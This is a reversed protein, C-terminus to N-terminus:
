EQLVLGVVRLATQMRKIAELLTNIAARHDGQAAQQKATDRMTRSEQVYRESLKITGQDPKLEVYAIPALEEYSHYRALEYEYEEADSKFKLDYTLTASGLLKNLASIIEAHADKLLEAAERYRGDKALAQAQDGQKRAREIGPGSAKGGPATRQRLDQYTAEANRLEKLLEEYRARQGAEAQQQDPAKRSLEEIMRLAEDALEEARALNDANLADNASAYVALAAAVQQKVAADDKRSAREMATSTALMMKVLQLKQQIMTRSSPNGTQGVVKPPAATQPEAHLCQAWNLALFPIWLAIAIKTM